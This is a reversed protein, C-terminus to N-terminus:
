QCIIGRNKEFLEACIDFRLHVEDLYSERNPLGLESFLDIVQVGKEIGVRKIESKLMELMRQKEERDELYFERSYRNPEFGMPPPLLIKIKYGDAILERVFGVYMEATIQILGEIPVDDRKHKNYIHQRVDVEGLLFLWLDDTPCRSLIERVEKDHKRGLNYATSGPSKVATVGEVQFYTAHSDGFINIGM